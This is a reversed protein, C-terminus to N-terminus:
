LKPRYGSYPIPDTFGSPRMTLTAEEIEEPGLEQISQVVLSKEYEKRCNDSCYLKSTLKDCNPCERKKTKAYEKAEAELARRARQSESRTITALESHKVEDPLKKHSCVSNTKYDEYKQNAQAKELNPSEENDMMYAHEECYARVKRIKKKIPEFPEGCEDCKMEPPQEGIYDLLRKNEAKRSKLEETLKANKRKEAELEQETEKLVGEAYKLDSELQRLEDDLERIPTGNRMAEVVEIIVDLKENVAAGTQKKVESQVLEGIQKTIDDM